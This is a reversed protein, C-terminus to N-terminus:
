RRDELVIVPASKGRATPRQRSGQPKGGSWSAAGSGVLEWARRVSQSEGIPSLIAISRGSETILLREGEQALKLYDNLRTRLTEIDVETMTGLRCLNGPRYEYFQLLFMGFLQDRRRLDYSLSGGLLQSAEEEAVRSAESM